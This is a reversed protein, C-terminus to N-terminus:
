ISTLYLYNKCLSCMNVYYRKNFPIIRVDVFPGYKDITNKVLIYERNIVRKYEKMIQILLLSVKSYHPSEPSLLKQM